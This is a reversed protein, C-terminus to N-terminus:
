YIHSRIIINKIMKSILSYKIKMKLANKKMPLVDMQVSLFLTVPQLPFVIFETTKPFIDLYVYIRRKLWLNDSQVFFVSLQLVFKFVQLEFM